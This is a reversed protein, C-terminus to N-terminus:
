CEGAHGRAVHDGKLSHCQPRLHSQCWSKLNLSHCQPQLHSQCPLVFKVTLHTRM